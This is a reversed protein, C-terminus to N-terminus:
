VLKALLRVTDALGKENPERAIHYEPLGYEALKRATTGGIAVVQQGPKVDYNDMYTDVNLPSTFVLYECFPLNINTRKENKYVVLNKIEIDDKLLHQVSQLSDEARVFLVEKGRAPQLFREATEEANGSGTFHVEVGQKSLAEATGPGMAATKVTHFFSKVPVQELFYKVGNKSYFFVWDSEPLAEIKVESIKLLSEDHIEFQKFLLHRFLSDSKLNRSIFIKEM